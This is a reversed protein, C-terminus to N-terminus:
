DDLLVNQEVLHEIPREICGIVKCGAKELEAKWISLNYFAYSGVLYVSSVDKSNVYKSVFSSINKKHFSGFQPSDKLSKSLSAWAYKADEQGVRLLQDIGQVRQFASMQEEDLTGNRYAEIVLKGFYFGSGEDGKLHGLGGFYDVVEKNKFHFLISGTGSIIINGEGKGCSAIGAAHLDSYVHVEDFGIKQFQSRLLEANSRSLCGAGYFWLKSKLEGRGQWFDRICKFFDENWNSPHYSETTFLVVEGSSDIFAWDTKTGGSEAILVNKM